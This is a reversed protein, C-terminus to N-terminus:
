QEETSYYGVYEEASMDGTLVALADEKELDTYVANSDHEVGLLESCKECLSMIGNINVSSRRTYSKGIELSEGCCVIVRYNWGANERRALYESENLKELIIM